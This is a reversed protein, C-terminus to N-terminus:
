FYKWKKGFTSSNLAPETSSLKEHLKSKSFFRIVDPQVINEVYRLHAKHDEICSENRPTESISELTEILTPDGQEPFHIKSFNVNAFSFPMLGCKKFGNTAIQVLDINEVANKLLPAFDEKRLIELNNQLRWDDLVKKWASKLPHFLWVDLPQLLHAANSYLAILEISNERCFLVLPLTIHSSHGDM